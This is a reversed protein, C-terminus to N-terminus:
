TSAGLSKMIEDYQRKAIDPNAPPGYKNFDVLDIESAYSILDMENNLLRDKREETISTDKTIDLINKI